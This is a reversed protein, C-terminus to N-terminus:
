LVVKDSVFLFLAETLCVALFFMLAIVSQQFPSMGTKRIHDTRTAVQFKAEEEDDM